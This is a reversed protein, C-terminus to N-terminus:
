LCSGELIAFLDTEPLTVVIVALEPVLACVLVVLLNALPLHVALSTRELLSLDEHPLTRTSLDSALM